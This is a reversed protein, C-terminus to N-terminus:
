CRRALGAGQPRHRAGPGGARRVDAGPHDRRGLVRAYAGAAWGLATKWKPVRLGFAAPSPRGGLWWVVVIASGVLILGPRVHPRARLRRKDLDTRASVPSGSSSASSSASRAPRRGRDAGGPVAGLGSRRAAAAPRGREDVPVPAGEPLEPRLPPPGQHQFPPPISTMPREFRIRVTSPLEALSAIVPVGAPVRPPRAAARSWCRACAPRSRAKSTRAPRTARTCRPRPPHAARAGARPRLDGPGAQRMGARRVGGVADVLPALGTEALREHLSHDWNSVVVISLGRERVSQLAGARRGPVRPVAARGAAGRHARGRDVPRRAGPADGRRLPPAPGGALRRRAGRAPARPLVRDRGPDRGGRGGRVGGPRVARAAGRAAAAGAARLVDAHRTRRSPPGPYAAARM